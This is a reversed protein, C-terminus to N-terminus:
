NHLENWKDVHIKLNEDVIFIAFIADTKIHKAKTVWRFGKKRLYNILGTDYSYFFDLQDLQENM